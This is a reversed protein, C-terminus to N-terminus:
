KAEYSRCSICPSRAEWSPKGRCHIVRHSDGQELEADQSRRPMYLSCTRQARRAWGGVSRKRGRTEILMHHSMMQRYHCTTYQCRVIVLILMLRVPSPGRQVRRRRLCDGRGVGKRASIRTRRRVTPDGGEARSVLGGVRVRLRLAAQEPAGHLHRRRGRARHRRRAARRGLGPRTGLM